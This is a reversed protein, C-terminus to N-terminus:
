SSPTPIKFTRVLGVIYGREAPALKSVLAEYKPTTTAYLEDKISEIEGLAM